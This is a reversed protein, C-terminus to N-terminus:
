FPHILVIPSHPFQLPFHTTPLHRSVQEPYTAAVVPPPPSIVATTNVTMKYVGWRLYGMARLFRGHRDITRPLVANIRNTVLIGQKNRPWYGYFCALPNLVPARSDGDAWVLKGARKRNPALRLWPLTIKHM